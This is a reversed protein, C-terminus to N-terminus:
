CVGLFCGEELVAEEESDDEEQKEESESDDEVVDSDKTNDKTYDETNVDESEESKDEELCITTRFDGSSAESTVVLGTLRSVIGYFGTKRDSPLYSCCLIRSELLATCAPGRYVGTNADANNDGDKNGDQEGDWDQTGM